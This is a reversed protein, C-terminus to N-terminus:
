ARRSHFRRFVDEFPITQANTDSLRRRVETEQEDSLHYSSKDQEEIFKLAEAADQQRDEPWTLVRDLLTKIDGRSM